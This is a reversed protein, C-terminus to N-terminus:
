VDGLHQTTDDLRCVRAFSRFAVIDTSHRCRQGKESVIGQVPDLLLTLPGRVVGKDVMIQIVALPSDRTDAHGTRRRRTGGGGESTAKPGDRGMEMEAWRWRPENGVRGMVLETWQM